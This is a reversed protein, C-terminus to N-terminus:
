FKMGHKEGEMELVVTVVRLVESPFAACAKLFAPFAAFNPSLARGQPFLRLGQKGSNKTTQSTLGMM